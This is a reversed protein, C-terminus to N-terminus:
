GRALAQEIDDPGMKRLTLSPTPANLNDKLQLELSPRGATDVLRDPLQGRSKPIRMRVLMDLREKPFDVRGDAFATFQASNVSLARVDALGRSAAVDLSIRNFDLTKPIATDLSMVTKANYEHMYSFPLLLVNLLKHAARVDPINSVRGNAFQLRAQGEVQDLGRSIGRLDCLLELNQTQFNPSHARAVRLRGKLDPFEKPISYKFVQAWPREGPEPVGMRARHKAIMAFIEAYLEDIRLSDVAAAVTVDKPDRLDRVFGELRVRSERWSAELRRVEMDGDKAEADAVLGTLSQGLVAWGGSSLAVTFSKMGDRASFTGDLDWLRDGDRLDLSLGRATLGLRELRPARLPGAVSATGSLAGSLRRASWSAYLASLDAARTRPLTIELRGDGEGLPLEGQASLRLPGASVYLNDVRLAQRAGEAPPPLSARLHWRSAPVDVWGSSPWYRSLLASDVAPASLTVDISPASFDRVRGSLSLAEGDVVARLREVRVEGGGALAVKAALDVLARVKKGGVDNENAFSLKVGFPETLSYRELALDFDRIAFSANRREDRVELVGREVAISDASQLPPLSVGSGTRAAGGEAPRLVDAFNWGSEKRLLTIRPSMLLAQSMEVRGRLLAWPRIKVILFDSSLLTGGGFEENDQVVLNSVKVGQHLLLNVKGVRVPRHFTRELESTIVEQLWEPTVMRTLLIGAVSFALAASLITWAAAQFMRDIFGGKRKKM